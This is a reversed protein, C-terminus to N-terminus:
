SIFCSATLCDVPPALDVLDSTKLCNARLCFIASFGSKYFFNLFIVLSSASAIPNSGITLLLLELSPDGLTPLILFLLPSYWDTSKPDWPRLCYDWVAPFSETLNFWDMFKGFLSILLASFLSLTISYIEL